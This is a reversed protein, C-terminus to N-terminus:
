FQELSTLYGSTSGMMAEAGDTSISGLKGWEINNKEGHNKLTEPPHSGKTASHLSELGLLEEIVDFNDHIARVIVAVHVTDSIDNSEDYDDFFHAIKIHDQLQCHIDCAREWPLFIINAHLVCFGFILGDPKGYSIPAIMFKDTSESTFQRCLLDERNRQM